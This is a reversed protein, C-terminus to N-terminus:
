AREGGATPLNPQLATIKSKPVPRANACHFFPWVRAVPINEMDYTDRNVDFIFICPQKRHLYHNRIECMIKYHYVESCASLLPALNGLTACVLGTGAAKIFTRRKMDGPTTMIAM